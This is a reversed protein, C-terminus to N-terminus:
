ASFSAPLSTGSRKIKKFFSLILYFCSTQPKIEIYKSLGWTPICYFCIKSYKDLFIKLKLRESFRRSSTEGSCKTYSKELFINGMNYYSILNWQRIAKAEWNNPLIHIVNALWTTVDYFKFIVKDKMDLRKAVHGVLWSLIMFIKFVCLAKSTFYFANKM